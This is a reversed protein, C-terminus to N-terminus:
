IGARGRWQPHSRRARVKDNLLSRAITVVSPDRHRPEARKPSIGVNGAVMIESLLHDSRQRLRIQM